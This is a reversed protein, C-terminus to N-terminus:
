NEELSLNVEVANHHERQSQETAEVRSIEVLICIVNKCNSVTNEHLSYFKGTYHPLSATTAECM